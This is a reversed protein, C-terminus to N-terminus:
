SNRSLPLLIFFAVTFQKSEGKMLTIYGSVHGAFLLMTTCSLPIDSRLCEPQITELSCVKDDFTKASWLQVTSSLLILTMLGVSHCAASSILKNVLLNKKSDGGEGLMCFTFHSATYYSPM